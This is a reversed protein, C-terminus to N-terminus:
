PQALRRAVRYLPIAVLRRLAFRHAPEGPYEQRNWEIVRDIYRALEGNFEGRETATTRLYEELYRRRARLVAPWRWPRPERLVRKTLGWHFVVMPFHRLALDTCVPDIIVLEGGDPHPLMNSPDADFRVGARHAATFLEILPRRWRELPAPEGRQILRDLDDGPIFELSLRNEGEDVALLRAPRVGDIARCLPELRAYAAREEAATYVAHYRKHVVAPAGERPLTVTANRAALRSM